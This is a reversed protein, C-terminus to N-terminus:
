RRRGAARLITKESIPRDKPLAEAVQRILAKDALEIRTPIQDGYLEKLIAQARRRQHQPKSSPEAAAEARGTVTQSPKIQNTLGFTEEFKERDSYTECLYQQWAVQSQGIREGRRFAAYASAIREIDRAARISDEASLASGQIRWLIVAGDEIARRIEQGAGHATKGHAMLVELMDVVSLRRARYGIM